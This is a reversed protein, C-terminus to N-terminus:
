RSTHTFGKGVVNKEGNNHDQQIINDDQTPM